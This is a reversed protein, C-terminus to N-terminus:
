SKLRGDAALVGLGVFKSGVHGSSPGYDVTFGGLDFNRLGALSQRVKARTPNRGARTLAEALIRVNIYAELSGSTFLQQDMARMAAQYDRVIVHKAQNADPFVMTIAVGQVKVGLQRIGDPTLSASLGAIPLLPSAQKLKAVLDTTAAGATGLLVASPKAALVTAITTDLNKGDVSLPVMAVAKIGAATLARTADDAVEKGYANDLYVLALDRIGMSVLNQVLRNVEDTYSARVHFVNQLETKRLSSAGTLPALHPTGAAEILPSIAANNATGLCGMLAIVSSDAMLRRVNEVSRAPNYEDDV